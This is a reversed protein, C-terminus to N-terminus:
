FGGFYPNQRATFLAMVVNPIVHDGFSSFSVGQGFPYLPPRVSGASNKSISAFDTEASKGSPANPIESATSAVSTNLSSHPIRVQNGANKNANGTESSDNIAVTSELRVDAMNGVKTGAPYFTFCSDTETTAIAVWGIVFITDYFM